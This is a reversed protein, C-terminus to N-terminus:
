RHRIAASRRRHQRAGMRPRRDPRAARLQGVRRRTVRRRSRPPRLVGDARAPLQDDRARLGARPVVPHQVDTTWRRRRHPRRRSDVGDGAARVCRGARPRQPHPLGREAEQGGAEVGLGLAKGRARGIGLGDISGSSSTTWSAPASIAPRGTGRHVERSGRWPEPPAPAKWRLPGIPPAAYPIGLHHVLRGKSGIKGRVKGATTEVVHKHRGIDVMGWARVHAPRERYGRVRETSPSTWGSSAACTSAGTGCAARRRRPGAPLSPRVVRDGGPGRPPRAVVRPLLARRQRVVPAARHGSPPHRSRRRDTGM